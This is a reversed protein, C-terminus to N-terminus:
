ELVAWPILLFTCSYGKCLRKTRYKFTVVLIMFEMPIVMIVAVQETPTVMIVAVETPIVMTILEMLIVMTVQETPIVTTAVQMVTDMNKRTTFTTIFTMMISSTLWYIKFKLMPIVVVVMPTVMLSEQMPIVMNEMETGM